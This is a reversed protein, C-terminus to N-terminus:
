SLEEFDAPTIDTPAAVRYFDRGWRLRVSDVRGPHQFAVLDDTFRGYDFGHPGSRLLTVLSRAHQIVEDFTESTGMAQFRRVVGLNEEGDRFRLRGLATGFPTRVVHMRESQSQQHLAYLTLAAHIALENPTPDDSRPQPAAPDVIYGLIEPIADVPRGVGRRLQALTSRAAAVQPRAVYKEQLPTITALVFASTPTRPPGSASTPRLAAPHSM